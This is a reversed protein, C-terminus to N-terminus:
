SNRFKLINNIYHMTSDQKKHGIISQIENYDKNEKMLRYIFLYRYINSVVDKNPLIQTSVGIYKRTRHIIKYKTSQLLYTLLDINPIPQLYPNTSTNILRPNSKKSAPVKIENDSLLKGMNLNTIENARIGTAYMFALEIYYQKFYSKLQNFIIDNIHNDKDTWYQIDQM